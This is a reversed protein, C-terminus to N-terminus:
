LMVPRIDVFSTNRKRSLFRQILRNADDVEAFYQRRSPSPKISIFTFPVNPLKKRVYKFLTVFRDYTQKGTQKGTAIDNERAYLVVQSPQYRVIVRDAYRIVDSLESGGFGRNLVPKNPFDTPLSTWYRISSSATFLIPHQPPPTAQDAKEFAQIESEFKPQTQARLPHVVLFVLCFQAVRFFPNM